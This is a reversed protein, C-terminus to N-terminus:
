EYREAVGLDQAEGYAEATMSGEALLQGNELAINSTNTDM